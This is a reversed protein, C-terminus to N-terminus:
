LIEVGELALSRAREDVSADRAPVSIWQTAVAIKDKLGAVGIERPPVELARAIEKVVDDTTRNKKRVHLYLHTGEGSPEYAPIEDVVFDEPSTKIRGVQPM